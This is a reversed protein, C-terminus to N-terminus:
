DLAPLQLKKASFGKLEDETCALIGTLANLHSSAVVPWMDALVDLGLMRDYCSTSKMLDSVIPLSSENLIAVAFKRRDTDASEMLRQVAAAAITGAGRMRELVDMAVMDIFLPSSTGGEPPLVRLTLSWEIVSPASSAAELGIAGLGDVAGGKIFIANLKSLVERKDDKGIRIPAFPEAVIKTLDPVAASAAPGLEIIAEYAMGLEETNRDRIVKLWHSLPEGFAVPDEQVKDARAKMQAQAFTEEAMAITLVMTAALWVSRKM